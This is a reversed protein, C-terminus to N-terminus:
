AAKRPTLHEVRSRQSWAQQHRAMTWIRAKVKPPRALKCIGNAKLAFRADDLPEVCIRHDWDGPHDEEHGPDVDVVLDAHDEQSKVRNVDRAWDVGGRGVRHSVPRDRFQEALHQLPRREEGRGLEGDGGMRPESTASKTV